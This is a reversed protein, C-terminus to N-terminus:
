NKTANYIDNTVPINLLKSSHTSKLPNTIDKYRGFFSYIFFVLHFYPEKVMKANKLIYFTFTSTTRTCFM